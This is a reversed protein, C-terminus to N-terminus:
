IMPPRMSAAEAQHGLRLWLGHFAVESACGRRSSACVRARVCAREQTGLPM